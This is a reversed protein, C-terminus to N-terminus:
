RVEEALDELSQQLKAKQDEVQRIQRNRDEIYIV